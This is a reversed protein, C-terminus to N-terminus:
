PAPAAIWRPAEDMGPRDALLEHPQFRAKYRMSACGAVRFGLYVHAQGRERALRLLTLVHLVGPSRAAYAPDYFFYAASWARPTEDCLGVGVLRGGDYYAVERACPHPLAFQRAYDEADFASAEWGRSAEREAYWRAHLAVREADAVPEGVVVALSGGKRLVRRQQRSPAFAAVPVRLSVCERCPACAPRFYDTGFRRWGRELMAELEEPSVYLLRKHVLSAPTAELYSCPRPRERLVGLIVAM